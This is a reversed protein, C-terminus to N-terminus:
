IHMRMSRTSTGHRHARTLSRQRAVGVRLPGSAVCRRIIDYTCAGEGEQLSCWRLWFLSRARRGQIGGTTRLMYCSHGIALDIGHVFLLLICSRRGSSQYVRQPIRCTTDCRHWSVKRPTSLQYAEPAIPAGYWPFSKVIIRPVYVSR